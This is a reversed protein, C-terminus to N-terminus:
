LINHLVNSLLQIINTWLNLLMVGFEKHGSGVSGGFIVNM